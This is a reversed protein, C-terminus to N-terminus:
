RRAAFKGGAALAGAAPLSDFAIAREFLPRPDLGLDGAEVCSEFKQWLESESLPVSSHGRARAIAASEATEGSRLAIWVKDARSYGPAEPDYDTNTRTAVRGMLGQVEPRRVFDDTLQRLGVAGALVAAAMAFEISFKAALGTEPRHNRLILANRESLEVAIGAIAEPALPRRRLLDLAADIPRHACYCVPYKKVSLGSEVIRLPRGVPDFPSERDVDGHPSIAMLLGRPHELADASGTMGAKALRAAMVGAHASRGAHFPKAMTGFNAALGAAQSAGLALAHATEEANLRHLRACAAAAGVTGFVGTPHWGKEHHHGRERGVLEAWVEYGAVYATAMDAGSANLAEAEALIAPVLVASIHGGPGVDDYDLAHAAAGNIWAAEPASAKENSLYLTAAGGGAGQGGGNPLLVQRLKQPAPERAGAAMVGLCDAFGLRAVKLAAEPLLSYELGAVFGAIEATLAM